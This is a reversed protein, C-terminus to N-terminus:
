SCMFFLYLFRRESLGYLFSSLSGVLVIACFVLIRTSSLLMGLLVLDVNFGVYGRGGFSYPSGFTCLGFMESLGITLAMCEGVYLKNRKRACVSCSRVPFDSDCMVLEVSKMCFIWFIRSRGVFRSTLKSMSDKKMCTGIFSVNFMIFAEYSTGKSRM